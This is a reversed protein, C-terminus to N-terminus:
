VGTQGNFPTTPTVYEYSQGLYLTGEIDTCLTVYSAPMSSNGTQNIQIGGALAGDIDSGDIALNFTELGGNNIQYTVSANAVPTLCGIALVCTLTQVASKSKRASRGILYCNM